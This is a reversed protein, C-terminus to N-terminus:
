ILPTEYVAVTQARLAALCCSLSCLLIFGRLDKRMLMDPNQNTLAVSSLPIM